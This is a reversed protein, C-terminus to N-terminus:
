LYYRLLFGPTRVCKRSVSDFQSLSLSLSSITVFSVVFLPTFSTAAWMVSLFLRGLPRSGKARNVGSTATLSLLPLPLMSSNFTVIGSLEFHKMYKNVSKGRKGVLILEM